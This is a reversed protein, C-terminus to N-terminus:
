KKEKKEENTVEEGFIKAINNNLRRIEERLTQYFWGVDDDGEFIHQKDIDHLRNLALQMYNVVTESMQNYQSIINEYKKEKIILKGIAVFLAIIILILLIIVFIEM